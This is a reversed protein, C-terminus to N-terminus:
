QTETNLKYGNKVVVEVLQVTIEILDEDMAAELSILDCTSLRGYGVEFTDTDTFGIYLPHGKISKPLVELLAGLTWAPLIDKNGRWSFWEKKDIKENIVCYYYYAPPCNAKEYYMDATERPVGCSLLRNSQERTTVGNM